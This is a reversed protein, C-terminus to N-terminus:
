AYTVGTELQKVPKPREDLARLVLPGAAQSLQDHLMGSTTSLAISYKKVLLMDGTDLGENMQMIVIATEKDGAMITRQIPAAGRWRPLLSPHVNICGLPYAELIS